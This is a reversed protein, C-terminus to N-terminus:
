KAGMRRGAVILGGSLALLLVLGAAGLVLPLPNSRAAPAAPSAQAAPAAATQPQAAVTPPVSANAVIAPTATPTRTPASTSTPAPKATAAPVTTANAVGVGARRPTPSAAPPGPLASGAGGAGPFAGAITGGGGPLAFTSADLPLGALSPFPGIALGPTDEGAMPVAGAPAVIEVPQDFNSYTQTMTLSFSGGQGDGEPIAVQMGTAARHIYSDADGIWLDVTVLMTPLPAAGPAPAFAPDNFLEALDYEVHWHTTAAGNVEAPGVPTFEPAAGGDMSAWSSYDPAFQQTAYGAPV